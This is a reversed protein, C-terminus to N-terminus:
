VLDMQFCGACVTLLLFLVLIIIRPLGFRVVMDNMHKRM